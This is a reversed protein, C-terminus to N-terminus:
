NAQDLCAKGGYAHVWVSKPSPFLPEGCASCFKAKTHLHHLAVEGAIEFGIHQLTCIMRDVEQAPSEFVSWTTAYLIEQESGFTIWLQLHEETREIVYADVRIQAMGMGSALAVGAAVRLARRDQERVGEQIASAMPRPRDVWHITGADLLGRIRDANPMWERSVGAYIERKWWLASDWPELVDKIIVDVPIWFLQPFSGLAFAENQGQPLPQRQPPWDCRLDAVTYLRDGVTIEDPTESSWWGAPRTILAEKLATKQAASIETSIGPTAIVALLLPYRTEKETREIQRVQNTMQILTRVAQIEGADYLHVVAQQLAECDTHNILKALNVCLDQAKEPKNNRLNAKTADLIKRAAATLIEKPDRQKAAWVPWPQLSDSDLALLPM